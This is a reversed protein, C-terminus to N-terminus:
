RFGEMCVIGANGPLIEAGSLKWAVEDKHYVRGVNTGDPKAILVHCTDGRPVAIRLKEGKVTRIYHYEGDQPISKLLDNVTMMREAGVIDDWADRAPEMRSPILVDKIDRGRITVTQGGADICLCGNIDTEATVHSSGLITVAVSGTNITAGCPQVRVKGNETEIVIWRDELGNITRALEALEAGHM